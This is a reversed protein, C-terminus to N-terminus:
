KHLNDDKEGAAMPIDILIFKFLGLITKIPLVVFITVVGLLWQIIASGIKNDM